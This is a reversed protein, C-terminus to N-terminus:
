MVYGMSGVIGVSKLYAYVSDAQEETIDFRERLAKNTIRKRSVAWARLDKVEIVPIGDESLKEPVDVDVRLPILNVRASTSKTNMQEKKMESEGKGM